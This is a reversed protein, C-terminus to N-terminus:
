SQTKERKLIKQGWCTVFVSPSMKKRPQPMEYFALVNKLYFITNKRIFRVLKGQFCVPVIKKPNHCGSWCILQWSQHDNWRALFKRCPSDYLDLINSPEIHLQFTTLRSKCTDAQFWSDIWCMFLQPIHVLYPRLWKKCTRM